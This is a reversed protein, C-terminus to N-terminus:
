RVWKEIVAQLQGSDFPKALYDSMGAALCRARDAPYANATLAIIPPAEAGARAAHLAAIARSAELGNMVPMLMDMLIIDFTGGEAFSREVAAVAAHGDTAVVVDGGLKEVVRRALLANIANDEAILVRLPRQLREASTPKVPAAEFAGSDAAAPLTLTTRFTAGEGPAGEATIDGGMARALRLSIALGLGAGVRRRVVAADGRDFEEFVRPISDRALGIGTDAVEIIIRMDQAVSVRVAVSGADTFKIANSVLNLLIQRVRAEDGVVRPALAEDLSLTLSLGKAEARPAMLDVARAACARISFPEQALDLRGAEIRSLDLIEDLLSLLARTSQDIAEAYTKQTESLETDYLLSTMGLIGNMPTRIEHSMSALFRSKAENATLAADRAERSSRLANFLRDREADARAKIATAARLGAISAIVSAAFCAALLAYVGASPDSAVVIGAVGFVAAAAAAASMIIQAAANPAWSAPWMHARM